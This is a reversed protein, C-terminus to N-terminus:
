WGSLNNKSGKLILEAGYANGSGQQLKDSLTIVKTDAQNVDFTYVRQIDKYYLDLSIVTAPNLQKDLGVIYHVSKGPKYNTLPFYYDVSQNMEIENTNMSIIYQHYLGWASRLKFEDPLTLVLNVRPEHLWE